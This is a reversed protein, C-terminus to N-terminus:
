RWNWGGVTAAISITSAVLLALRTIRYNLTTRTM